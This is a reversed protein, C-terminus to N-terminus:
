SKIFINRTFVRRRKVFLKVNVCMLLIDNQMLYSYRILLRMTGQETIDNLRKTFDILLGVKNPM